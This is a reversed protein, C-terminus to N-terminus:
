WRRRMASTPRSSDFPMRPLSYSQNEDMRSYLQRWLTFLSLCLSLRVHYISFACEQKLRVERAFASAVDLDDHSATHSEEDAANLVQLDSTSSDGSKNKKDSDDSAADVGGPKQFRSLYVMGDEYDGRQSFLDGSYEAFIHERNPGGSGSGRPSGRAHVLISKSRPSEVAGFTNASM